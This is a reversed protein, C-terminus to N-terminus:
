ARISITIPGLPQYQATDIVLQFTKVTDTHTGGPITVELHAVGGAAGEWATSVDAIGAAVPQYDDPALATGDVTHWALTAPIDPGFLYVDVAAIATQSPGYPKDVTAGLTYALREPLTPADTFSRVFVDTANNQDGSTLDAADSTFATRAGNSSIAVADVEGHAPARDDRASLIKVTGTARDLVRAERGIVYGPFFPQYFYGGVFAVYRGDSSIDISAAAAAVVFSAPGGYRPSREYLKTAFSNAHDYVDNTWALANGDKSYAARNIAKEGYLSFAPITDRQAWVNNTRDFEVLREEGGTDSSPYECHVTFAVYRGDGSVAPAGVRRLTVDTPCAALETNLVTTLKKTRDRVVVDTAGALTRVFAVVTGDASLDPSNSSWNTQTSSGTVSVRETTGADLDRVFVDTLNNTDGNVLNSAESAFAVYRGDGNIAPQSSHGNAAVNGPSISVRQTTGTTLDRRFVDSVSNTDGVVLNSATSTFAVYRGDDSLSPQSSAGNSDGGTTSVSVRKVCGTLIMAASVVAVIATTRVRRDTM